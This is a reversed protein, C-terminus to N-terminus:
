EEIKQFYRQHQWLFINELKVQLAQDYNDKSIGSVKYVRLPVLNSIKAWHGYISNDDYIGLFMVKDGAKLEETGM